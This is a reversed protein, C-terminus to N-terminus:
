KRGWFQLFAGCLPIRLSLSRGQPRVRTCFNKCIPVCANWPRFCDKLWKPSSRQRWSEVRASRFLYALMDKWRGGQKTRQLCWPAAFLSFCTGCGLPVHYGLYIIAGTQTVKRRLLFEQRLSKANHRPDSGASNKYALGRMQTSNGHWVMCKSQNVM